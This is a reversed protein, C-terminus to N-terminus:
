RVELKGKIVSVGGTFSIKYDYQSRDLELLSINLWLKNDEKVLQGTLTSGTLYSCGNLTVELDFDYSTLDVETKNGCDDSDFFEFPANDTVLPKQSEGIINFENVESPIALTEIM